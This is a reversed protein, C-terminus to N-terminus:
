MHLNEIKSSDYTDSKNNLTDNKIIISEIKWLSMNGYFKYNM